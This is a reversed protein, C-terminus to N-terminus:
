IELYRIPFLATPSDIEMLHYVQFACVPGLPTEPPNLPLALNGATALQGPYPFHLASIRASSCIADALAQNPATAEGLLALEHAPQTLPELEGMVGNKGYTHFVFRAEGSAVEPYVARLHAHIRAEFDDIQGILIPDRIGGIFATRYGIPGAGELKVAYRPSPEFQSGSVRVTREDIQEYRAGRLDLVGGPGPLRDPRTKEYLTHAAVSLPTCTEAPNMPELDFSDRRVTAVIVKGKPRACNAGCEMIKGMHWYVGPRVDHVIGLAAYPAPDYARGAVVIDVGGHLMAEVFPEAGMQAVIHTTADIDDHTLPPSSACSTVSGEELKRHVIAKDVGAYIAAVNFRYGERASIERIIDIMADVHADIGPGGASGIYIPVRYRHCAELMLSLDRVYAARPVLTAGLGLQYPGPDTSGSDVVMADVGSEIGRWFHAAPIGYGLMGVPTLIRFENRNM